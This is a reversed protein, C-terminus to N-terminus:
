RLRRHVVTAAADVAQMARGCMAVVRALWVPAEGTTNLQAVAQNLNTGVRGVATRTAFLDRQLAALEARTVGGTRDGGPETLHRAAALAANACFGTPTMACRAAAADIDSEEDPGFRLNIRRQRGPFTHRRDSGRSAPPADPVPSVAIDVTTVQPETM